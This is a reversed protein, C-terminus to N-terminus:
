GWHSGCMNCRKDLSTYGGTVIEGVLIAIGCFTLRVREDFLDTHTCKDERNYLASYVM